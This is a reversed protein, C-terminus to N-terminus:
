DKYQDMDDICRRCFWSGRQRKEEGCTKCVEWEDAVGAEAKQREERQGELFAERREETTWERTPKSERREKRKRADADSQSPVKNSRDMYRWVMLRSRMPDDGSM